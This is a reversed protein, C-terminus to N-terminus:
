VPTCLCVPLSPAHVFLNSPPFPLSGAGGGEKAGRPYASRVVTRWDSWSGGVGDKVWRLRLRESSAFRLVEVVVQAPAASTVPGHESDQQLEARDMVLLAPSPSTGEIRAVIRTGDILDIAPPLPVVLAVLTDPAGGGGWVCVCMCVCVCVVYM